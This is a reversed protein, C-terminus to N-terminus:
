TDTCYFTHKPATKASLLYGTCNKGWNRHPGIEALLAFYPEASTKSARSESCFFCFFFLSIAKRRRSFLQTSLAPSKNRPSYMHQHSFVASVNIYLSFAVWQGSKLSVYDLVLCAETLRQASNFPNNLIICYIIQNYLATYTYRWTTYQRKFRVMITM